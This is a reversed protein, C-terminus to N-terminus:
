GQGPSSTEPDGVIRVYGLRVAERVLKASTSVKLKHMINRRHTQVTAESLNLQRAAELDDQGNGIIRLIRREAPTLKPRAFRASDHDVLYPHLHPSIYIRGEAVLRLAKRIDKLSETGTDLIADVRATQLSPVLNVDDIDAVILVHRASKQRNIDQLLELDDMGPFNLGLLLFDAPQALLAAHLEDASRCVLIAAKPLAQRCLQALAEAYTRDRKAIIVRGPCSGAAPIPPNSIM